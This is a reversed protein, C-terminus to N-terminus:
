GDAVMSTTRLLYPAVAEFISSPNHRHMCPHDPVICARQDCPSCETDAFLGKGVGLPPGTLAPSAPGYLGLFPTGLAAALHLPGSDTGIFVTAHAILLASQSWDLTGVTSVEPRRTFGDPYVRAIDRPTGLVVVRTDPCADRLLEIFGDVHASPWERYTWGAFPHVVVIPNLLSIDRGSAFSAWRQSLAPSIQFTRYPEMECGILDAVATARHYLNTHYPILEPDISPCTSDLALVERHPAMSANGDLYGSHIGAPALLALFSNKTSPSMSCAHDFTREHLALIANICAMPDEPWPFSVVECDVGIARLVSAHAPHIALTITANPFTHTFRRYTGLAAMLDGFRTTEVLLIRRVDEPHPKRSAPDELVAALLRIIGRAIM